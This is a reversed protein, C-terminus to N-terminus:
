FTITFTTKKGPESNVSIAAGHLHLIQRSISLGIGSGTEKTTFFPIFIKDQIEPLIGAGNDTVALTITGLEQLNANMQVWGDSVGNLAQISNVVLNLLVQEILNQDATLELSKPHVEYALTIGAKEAQGRVFHTVRGFLDRIQFVEFRPKPIQSFSRYAGVFHYMGKAREEIAEVATQMDAITDLEDDMNGIRDMRLNTLLERITSALTAIPTISNMIEHTLVRILSQWAGLEADDLEAKINHFSALRYYQDGLRFDTVEISLNRSIGEHKVHLLKREGMKLALLADALNGSLQRLDNIDKAQPTGLLRKAVNNMLNIKGDRTFVLLGAGVQQVIINLYRYQEEKEAKATQLKKSIRNLSHNLKQFPEGVGKTPFIESFDDDEIADFFHALNRNSKDVWRILSYVQSAVFAGALGKM